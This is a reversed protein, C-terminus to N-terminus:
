ATPQEGSSTTQARKQRRLLMVARREEPDVRLYGNELMRRVSSPNGLGGDLILTQGTVFGSRPDAFHLMHFAVDEPWGLRGAASGVTYAEKYAPANATAKETMETDIFGPAVGNVTIGFEGLDQALNSVLGILAAKSAGYAESGGKNGYAILSANVVIRGYGRPMLGEKLMRSALMMPGELNVALTDRLSEYKLDEFREDNNVGANLFLLRYAGGFEEKKRKMEDIVVEVGDPNALDAGVWAGLTAEKEVEEVLSRGLSESSPRATMLVGHAGYYALGRALAAGIGNPKSAGTVVASEGAFRQHEPVFLRQRPTARESEQQM